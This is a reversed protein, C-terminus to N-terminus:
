LFDAFDLGTGAVAHGSADLQSTALGTFTFTGRGNADTFTNNFSRTYGGGFTWNHKGRRIAFTDSFGLSYVALQAPSGDTLAGFNTFSLSPPGFNIPNASTGQIGLAAAVNAGNAFFPTTVSTNRNFTGTLNEFMGAGFTHRYNVNANVGHGTSQDLFGYNQVGTYDRTQSNVGFSLQDRRSFTQNVR